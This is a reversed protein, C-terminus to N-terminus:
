LESSIVEATGTAVAATWREHCRRLARKKVVRYRLADRARHEGGTQDTEPDRDGAGGGGGGGNIASVRRRDHHALAGGM